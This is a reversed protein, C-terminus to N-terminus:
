EFFFAKVETLKRKWPESILILFERMLPCSSRAMYLSCLWVKYTWGRAPNCVRMAGKSFETKEYPM